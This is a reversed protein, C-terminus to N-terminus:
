RPIAHRRRFTELAKRAPHVRGNKVDERGQRIGERADAQEATDLLRAKKLKIDKKSNFM